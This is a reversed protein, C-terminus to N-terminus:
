AGGGAGAQQDAWRDFCQYRARAKAAAQPDRAQLFAVVQAASAHLSYLDCGYFGAAARPDPLSANHARLWQAFDAVSSNRWM